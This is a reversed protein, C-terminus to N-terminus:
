GGAKMNTEHKAEGEVRFIATVHKDSVVTSM